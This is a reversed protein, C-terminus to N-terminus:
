PTTVSVAVVHGSATSMFATDMKTTRSIFFGADGSVAASTDVNANTGKGIAVANGNGVGVDLINSSRTRTSTTTHTLTFNGYATATADVGVSVAGASVTDLQSDTLQLPVNQPEASAVSILISFIFSSFVSTRISRKKVFIFIM